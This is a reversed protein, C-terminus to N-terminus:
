SYQNEEIFPQTCHYANSAEGGQSTAWLGSPWIPKYEDDDDDDDDDHLTTYPQIGKVDRGGSLDGM